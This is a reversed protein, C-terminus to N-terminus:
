CVYHRQWKNTTNSAFFAISVGASDLHRDHTHCQSTTVTWASARDQWKIWPWPIGTHLQLAANWEAPSSTIVLHRSLLLSNVVQSHFVCKESITLKTMM